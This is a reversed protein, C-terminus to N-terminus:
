YDSNLASFYYTHSFVLMEELIKTSLHCIPGSIRAEQCVIQNSAFFVLPFERSSDIVLPKLDIKPGEGDGVFRQPTTANEMEWKKPLYNYGQHHHHPKQTFCRPFSTQFFSSPPFLPLRLFSFSSM